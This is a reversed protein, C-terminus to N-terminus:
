RWISSIPIVARMQVEVGIASAPPLSLTVFEQDSLRTQTLLFRIIPHSGVVGLGDHDQMELWVWDM